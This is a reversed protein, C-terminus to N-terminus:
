PVPPSGEFVVVPAETSYTVELRVLGDDRETTTFVYTAVASAGPEVDGTFPQAPPGSIPIGPVGDGYALNVTVLDASIAAPTDNTLRLTFALGPGSIEGPFRAETQISEVEELVASVGTGFDAEDDLAVPPATPLGADPSSPTGAVSPSGEPM